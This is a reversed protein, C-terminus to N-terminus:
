DFQLVCLSNNLIKFGVYCFIESSNCCVHLEIRHFLKSGKCKIDKTTMTKENEEIIGVKM